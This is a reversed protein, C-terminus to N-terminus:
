HHAPPARLLPLRYLSPTIIDPQYSDGVEWILDVPTSISVVTDATASGQHQASWECTNGLAHEVFVDHAFLNAQALLWALLILAGLRSKSTNTRQTLQM